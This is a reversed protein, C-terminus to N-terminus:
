PGEDGVKWDHRSSSMTGQAAPMDPLLRDHQLIYVQIIKNDM